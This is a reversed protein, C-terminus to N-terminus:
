IPRGHIGVIGKQSRVFGEGYFRRLKLGYEEGLAQDRRNRM